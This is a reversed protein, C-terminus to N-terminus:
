NSRILDQLVKDLMDREIEREVQQHKKEEAKKVNKTCTSHNEKRMDKKPSEPDSWLKLIIQIYRIKDNFFSLYTRIDERSQNPRVFM